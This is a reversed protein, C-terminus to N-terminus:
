EDHPSFNFLKARRHAIIWTNSWITIAMKRDDPIYFRTAPDV